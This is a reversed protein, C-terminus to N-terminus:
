NAILWSHSSSRLKKLLRCLHRQVHSKSPKHEGFSCKQEYCQIRGRGKFKGRNVGRRHGRNTEKDVEKGKSSDNRM